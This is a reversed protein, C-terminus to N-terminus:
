THKNRVDTPPLITPSEHTSNLRTSQRATPPTGLQKQVDLLRDPALVVVAEVVADQEGVEMQGGVTRMVGGDVLRGLIRGDHPDVFWVTGGVTLRWSEDAAAPRQM